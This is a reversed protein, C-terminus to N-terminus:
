EMMLESFVPKENNDVEFGLCSTGDVELPKLFCFYPMVEDPLRNEHRIVVFRRGKPNWLLANQYLLRDKLYLLPENQLSYRLNEPENGLSRASIRGRCRLVTGEYIFLGLKISGTESHGYLRVFDTRSTRIEAEYDYYLGNCVFEVTGVKDFFDWVHYLPM